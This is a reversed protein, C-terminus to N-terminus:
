MTRNNFNTDDLLIELKNVFLLDLSNGVTIGWPTFTTISFSSHTECKGLHIPLPKLSIIQRCVTKVFEYVKTIGNSKTQKAQNSRYSVSESNKIKNKKKTRIQIYNIIHLKKDKNYLNHCVLVFRSWRGDQLIRPMWYGKKEDYFYYHYYYYFIFFEM